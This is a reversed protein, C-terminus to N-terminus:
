GPWGNPPETPYITYNDGSGTCGNRRYLTINSRRAITAFVLSGVGALHSLRHNALLYTWGVVM